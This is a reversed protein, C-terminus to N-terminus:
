PGPPPLSIGWQDVPVGLLTALNQFYNPDTVDLDTSGAPAAWSGNVDGKLIGVLNVPGNAPDAVISRDWAASTRSLTFAGQGNNATQDWFDRKEEVFFWEQPVATSLKVAMRLIALADASTVTGNGNVDAAMIQYPSVMPAKLPGAGDPDANPNLGVAIRLAALADASTIAGGSDSTARSAQLQYSGPALTDIAWTGNAGTTRLHLGVSQGPLQAEGLGVQSLQVVADTTGPSMQLQLTGLKTPSTLGLSDLDLNAGEVLFEGSEPSNGLVTWPELLPSTFTASTMQSATLKFGFNNVGTTANSWVEVTLTSTAANWAAARLDLLDAANAQVASATTSNVQVGSLLVHSKWHYAMGQMTATPTPADVTQDSFKLKEVNVLTDTGDRGATNDTVTIVGTGQNLTVTYESKLGTFRATDTGSGGDISDNGAGGRLTDNGAGGSLVDQGGVPLSSTLGDLIQEFLKIPGAGGSRGDGFTDAVIQGDGFLADDGDGGSLTDNGLDGALVNAGADGTLEDNLRGGSLNEIEALTWTGAGTVQAGAVLAVKIGVEPGGNEGYGVADVGSGGILTHNGSGVQLLDNGGQGELSDNNSTSATYSYEGTVPDPTDGQVQSSSGWLWNDAGNGILTDAFPTGSVQEISTYVDLGQRTDQATTIRLDISVGGIAPDTQYNSARDIGPGGDLTDNGFGGGLFDDGEGASLSDNGGHGRLADHGAGGLLTDDGANGYLYDAGDLGSLLDNGSLGYFYNEEGGGTLTDNGQTGSVELGEIGTLSDTGGRGDSQLGTSLTSTFNVADGDFEYSVTDFGEGGDVTDNDAQGSSLTIYDNGAGASLLDHGGGAVIWDDGGLGNITDPGDAGILNDNGASGNISQGPVGGTPADVTQDSFALKEVNVLTDAGDRGPTNDTVTIVGSGQNLTVTYDAKVGTFRATDTGAGGDISDNGQGGHITDDGGLASITDDGARGQFDNGEDSGTLTDSSASGRVNEISILTDNGDAGSASGAGLNVNIPGSANTYLVWDQGAFGNLVDDGARGELINDASSGLLTDNHQSGQAGAIGILVDNGDGGSASGAALDVTVAASADRYDAYSFGLDTGSPDGGRITDDGAGGRFIEVGIRNSGTIQDAFRSGIVFEIDRLVDTGVGPGTASGSMGDAGLSVTVGETADSYIAVDFENSVNATDSPNPLLRQAGGDLTDNGAGGTMTDGGDGGSILDDGSQGQIVNGDASGVITDNFNSGRVEEISILTDTGDSAPDSNNSRWGDRATGSALNVNVANPSTQYNARDTGGKGDIIDNGARGEFSEYRGAEDSGTLTDNYASGRVEEINILTDTGDSAPNSNDSRWGDRATGTSSGGLTVSVAFPSNDYYVRDFGTGGDITDNGEEGRFGEFGDTQFAGNATDGGVLNDNYISGWVLEISKLTDTTGWNDTATGTKLNVSVGQTSTAPTGSDNGDDRYNVIDFGAGGDVSDAGSGPYFNDDGSGGMLTDAGARAFVYSGGDALTISDAHHTGHAAEISVLTDSGVSPGTVTGTKLNIVVGASEGEYMVVDRGGRGDVSDNGGGPRFWNTVDSGLLTDNSGTGTVHEVNLLTDTGGTGDQAAGSQLDVQVGSTSGAYDVTDGFTGNAGGDMTDNGGGNPLGGANFYDDGAGGSLSDDGLGGSLGDNGGGGSITDPGEGGNLNNNGDDGTISQGPVEGTPEYRIRSGWSQNQFTFAQTQFSGNLRVALLPQEPNLTGVFLMSHDAAAVVVAQGAGLNAPASTATSLGTIVFPTFGMTIHLEDSVSFDTITDQGNALMLNFVFADSGSGGAATDDDALAGGLEFRDDGDGGSLSDNGAGGSLQDNGASGTVTDAHATGTFGFREVSVLTDAGNYGDSFVQPAASGLAVSSFDINVGTSLGLEDYRYSVFDVGPGGDMLDDGADGRLNDDGEGGLLTDNGANGRLFDSGAGGDLSDALDGAGSVGSSFEFGSLFDSGEGGLITDSGAGGSLYSSASLGGDDGSGGDIFDNGNGGWLADDGDAGSITDPGASGNFADNGDGGLFLRGQYTISGGFSDNFVQFAAPDYYRPLNITVDAGPVTDTGITLTTLTNSASVAWQGQGLPEAGTAAATGLALGKVHVSDGGNGFDIITDTGNVKSPDYAFTDWGGGGTLSDNGENGQFYNRESGGVLTDNGDTGFAHL